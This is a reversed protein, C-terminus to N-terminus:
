LSGKIAFPVPGPRRAARAAPLRPVLRTGGRVRFATTPTHNGHKPSYRCGLLRSLAPWEYLPTPRLRHRVVPLAALVGAYTPPGLAAGQPGQSTPM